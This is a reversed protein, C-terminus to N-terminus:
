TPRRDAASPLEEQEPVELIQKEVSWSGFALYFLLFPDLVHLEDNKYALAADGTGRNEDAITAMHGISATIQQGPIPEVFDRELIAALEQYTVSPKAAKAIAYLLAGYIDTKEGTKSVRAIRKQGRTKPGRLLTDFM